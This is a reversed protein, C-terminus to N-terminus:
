HAAYLSLPARCEMHHCKGAAPFSRRIREARLVAREGSKKASFCLRYLGVPNEQHIYPPDYPFCYHTNPYRCDGYGHFQWMFPVPLNDWGSDDQQPAFFAEDTDAELYSFKWM